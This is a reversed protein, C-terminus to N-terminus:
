APVLVEHVDRALHRGARRTVSLVDARDDHAVLRDEGGAVVARDPPETMAVVLSVEHLLAVAHAGDVGLRVGDHLGGAVSVADVAARDVDGRRGAPTAKAEDRVRSERLDDEALEVAVLLDEVDRLLEPDLEHVE